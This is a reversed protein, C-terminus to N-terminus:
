RTSPGSIKRKIQHLLHSEIIQRSAHNVHGEIRVVNELDKRDQEELKHREHALSNMIYGVGFKGSNIDERLYKNRLFSLNKAHEDIGAFVSNGTDGKQTPRHHYFMLADKTNIFDADYKLLYRIGFDWDEAVGLREDYGGLEEYVKRTYNFSGNSLYNDLCQEYLSVSTVGEMWRSRSIEKVATGKENIEEVVTDMVVVAGKSKHEEMFSLVVEVREPAWSDDDDLISIYTSDVAKIAQNLVPTHGKTTENHIVVRREDPYKKLLAEVAQRDGGDNLVVHVYDKSTQAAVSKLTRELLLNRNKTRTIIAMKGRKQM